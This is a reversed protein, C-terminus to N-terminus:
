LPDKALFQHLLSPCPCTRPIICACLDMTHTYPEVSNGLLPTGDIFTQMTDRSVVKAVLILMTSGLDKKQDMVECLYAFM